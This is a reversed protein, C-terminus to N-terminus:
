TSLETKARDRILATACKCEYKAICAGCWSRYDIPAPMPAAHAKAHRASKSSASCNRKASLPPGTATADRLEVQSFGRDVRLLKLRKGFTNLVKKGGIIENKSYYLCSIM